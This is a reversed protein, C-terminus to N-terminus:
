ATEIPLPLLPSRGMHVDRDSQSARSTQAQVEETVDEVHHLLYLLQGEDDIIPTNQPRWHREVFVGDANQVDYRQVKMTHRLGTAAAIQLSHLLRSVGDALPDDPNDPFVDFLPRGAVISRDILTAAAYGRNADVIHLGPRPDLLLYAQPSTEFTRQFQSINVGDRAVRDRRAAPAPLGARAGFSVAKLMALEREAQLLMSRLLRCEEENTETLLFKQFRAINQEIVWRQV